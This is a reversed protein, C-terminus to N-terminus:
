EAEKKTKALRRKRVLMQEGCNKCKWPYLGLLPYIKEQLFGERYLRFVKETGCRKCRIRAKAKTIQSLSDVHGTHAEGDSVTNGEVSRRSM